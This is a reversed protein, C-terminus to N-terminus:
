SDGEARDQIRILLFEWWLGENGSAMTMPFNDPDEKNRRIWWAEFEDIDARATALFKDLSMPM